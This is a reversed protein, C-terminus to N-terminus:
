NRDILKLNLITHFESISLSYIRPAKTPIHGTGSKLSAGGKKLRGPVSPGTKPAKAIAIMLLRLAPYKIM